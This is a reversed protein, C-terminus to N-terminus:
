KSEVNVFLKEAAKEGIQIPEKHEDRLQFLGDFEKKEELTYSTNLKIGKDALYDLFTKDDLVRRITFTIGVPQESLLEQKEEKVVEGEKPIMGGHPCHNPYDLFRELRRLLKKSTVHELVEAEEHVDSYSYDLYETLFVEWIRHKRVLISAQKLGKETLQIGQYPVHDIYGDKLLKRVM